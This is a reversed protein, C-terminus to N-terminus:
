MMACGPGSRARRRRGIVGADGDDLEEGEAQEDAHMMRAERARRRRRRNGYGGGLGGYAGVTGTGGGAEESAMMYEAWKRELRAAAALDGRLIRRTHETVTPQFGYFCKLTIIEHTPQSLSFSRTNSNNNLTMPAAPFLSTRIEANRALVERIGTWTVNQCDYVVMRLGIRPSHDLTPLALSSPTLTTEDDDDSGRSSAPITHRERLMQAAEALVLDSIRTNDLDLNRLQKCEKVVPLMGVDGLQECYSINLHKLTHRCPSKALEQISQNTLADLEELDLHTLSSLTPFLPVLAADTLGYCKSLQLGELFPVNGVMYAIGEDSIFQCRSVDLHRLTRPPVVPRGTLIDIEADTGEFLIKLSSDTLSTCNQMVLREINNSRYMELLLDEDDFGRVEGARLDKLLPCNKVVKLLGRSDVNACWCINLLEVQPCANAIVELTSNNVGDLNSLNIHVLRENQGLLAHFSPRGIRCGELSLNELNRCLGSLNETKWVTSLQICGRLNLDKMFPGAHRIIMALGKAPIDRYFEETNLNAWLQGDLCTKHWTRSVASCRIIQKPKLYNLIQVQLESPLEGWFDFNSRVQRLNPRAVPISFYDQSMLPEGSATDSKSETLSLLGHQHAKSGTSQAYGGEIIYPTEFGPTHIRSTNATYYGSGFTSSGLSGCSVSGRGYGTYTSTTSRGLKLVSQSSSIRQLGQFLKRRGKLKPVQGSSLDAGPYGIVPPLAPM